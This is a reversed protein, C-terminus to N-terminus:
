PFRNPIIMDDRTGPTSPLARSRLAREAAEIRTIEGIPM